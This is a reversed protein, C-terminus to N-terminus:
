KCDEINDPLLQPALMSRVNDGITSGCATRMLDYIFNMQKAADAREKWAAVKEMDYSGSPYKFNTETLIIFFKQYDELGSTDKSGTVGLPLPKLSSTTLRLGNSQKLRELERNWAVTAAPYYQRLEPTLGNRENLKAIQRIIKESASKNLFNIQWDCDKNGTTLVPGSSTDKPGCCSWYGICCFMVKIFSSAPLKMITCTLM